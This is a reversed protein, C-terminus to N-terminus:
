PMRDVDNSMVTVQFFTHTKDLLWEGKQVQAGFDAFGQLFFLDSCLVPSAKHIVGGGNVWQYSEKIWIIMFHRYVEHDIVCDALWYWNLTSEVAISAIQEKYPELEALVVDPQNPSRKHFIRRDKLDLIGVHSNNSHLDIGTYLQKM